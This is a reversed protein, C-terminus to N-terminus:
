LMSHSACRVLIVSEQQNDCNNDYERHNPISVLSHILNYKISFRYFKISQKREPLMKQSKPLPELCAPTVLSLFLSKLFTLLGGTM